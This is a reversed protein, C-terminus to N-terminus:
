HQDWRAIFRELAPDAARAAQFQGVADYVRWLERDQEIPRRPPCIWYGGFAHVVAYHDDVVFDPRVDVGLEALREQHDFLPKEHCTVILDSLEFKLVVEWRKGRGSWLYLRHGDDRLQQFVERVQPRLRFDWTILTDDVDFFINVIVIRTEGSATGPSTREKEIAGMCWVMRSSTDSMFVLSRPLM